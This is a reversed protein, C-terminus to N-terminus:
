VWFNTFYNSKLREMMWELKKRSRCDINIPSDGETSVRLIDIREGGGWIDKFCDEGLLIYLEHLITGKGFLSEKEQLDKSVTNEDKTSDSHNDSEQKNNLYKLKAKDGEIRPLVKQMLFDDWISLLKINEKKGIGVVALLIENLARYALQFPTQDLIRNVKTLFETTKTAVDPALNRCLVAKGHEDHNIAQTVTSFTIQKPQSKIKNIFENYKNPFFEQFDITMARDIVKRSFGHTTEDMNVTGAVILNPPLPIGNEQFYEWLHDIGNDEDLLTEKLEDLGSQDEKKDSNKVDLDKFISSSLIPQAKYEHIPQSKDENNNIWERTELISLYDAFYQEVPALNMEDLCLWFPTADKKWTIAYPGGAKTPLISEISAILAKVMFKLFDTAIYRTGGIRSIYGLLDSPEHWDPRVPVLCYNEGEKMEAKKAAMKAQEGVFRTKGTGSIGALLLFPKIKIPTLIKMNVEGTNKKNEQKIAAGNELLKIANNLITIIEGNASFLRSLDKLKEVRKSTDGVKPEYLIVAMTQTNFPSIKSYQWSDPIRIKVTIKFRYFTEFQKDNQANASVRYGKDNIYNKGDSFSPTINTDDVVTFLAVKENRNIWIVVDGKVYKKFKKFDWYFYKSDGTILTLYNENAKQGHLDYLKIKNM